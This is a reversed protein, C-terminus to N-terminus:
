EMNNNDTVEKGTKLNIKISATPAYFEIEPTFVHESVLIELLKHYNDDELYTYVEAPVKKGVLADYASELREAIRTYREFDKPSIDEFAPLDKYEIAKKLQTIAAKKQAILRDFKQKIVDQRKQEAIKNLGSVRTLQQTKKEKLSKLDNQYRKLVATVTGEDDDDKEKNKRELYKKLREQTELSYGSKRKRGM